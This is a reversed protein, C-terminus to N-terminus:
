LGRTPPQKLPWWDIVPYRWVVLLIAAVAIMIAATLALVANQSPALARLAAHAARRNRLGGPGFWLILLGVGAGIGVSLNGTYGTSSAYRPLLERAVYTVGAATLLPLLMTVFAGAASSLASVPSAIVQMTVARRRSSSVEERWRLGTMFSEITRATTLLLFLLITAAIPMSMAAAVVLAACALVPATTSVRRATVAERARSRKVPRPQEGTPEEPRRLPPAPRSVPPRGTTTAPLVATRAPQAAPRQPAPSPSPTLDGPPPTSRAVATSGGAAYRGFRGRIEAESPRDAPRVALCDALLPRLDADVTDLRLEGRRIRDLVAEVPGKGSPSSGTAAYAMVAAWAYWDTAPTAPDGYVTEPAVYGPTGVFLGTVTLRVDDALQAIGFDIVVPRHGELLVNGPKLDRHVVGVAHIASLASILGRGLTMLGERGLPGVEDVYHDLQPGRVFETVIYPRAAELDADIVDAINRDRVRRMTQLERRLRARAHPDDAIHERLVKLAVPREDADVALYVVGMGGSGAKRIIRYPGVYEDSRAATPLWLDARDPATM